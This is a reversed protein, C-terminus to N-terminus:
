RSSLMAARYQIRLLMHFCLLGNISKATLLGFNYSKNSKFLTSAVHFSTIDYIHM